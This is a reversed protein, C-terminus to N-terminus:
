RRPEAETPQDREMYRELVSLPVSGLSLLRDHFARVDFKAGSRREAQARIERIKLEGIKYALAQGPWAIYRDVESEIEIRPVATNAELYAIAQDRSWHKQHLGTDVVLRGARWASYELQGFEAYPDTYLGVERPLGESYLGWGESFAPVYGFKRFAPRGPVEMALSFQLHHGPVGEHYALAQMTYTTRSTPDSTNVYFYGPRSGDEPAPYYYGAAAAKARYAEIPRIGYDTRPLHGFLDPLKADIAEFIVRYRALIEPESQNKLKPDDKLQQFFAKLDGSFGVKTRIAEMAERIRAMEALGVEHIQEPSLTTTTFSRARYAYHVDGEPSDWLGVSERCAPLYETEVFAALKAYAPSVQDAIAQRIANTAPDRDAEPWDKLKAVIGWLPSEEPKVPALDRLQPVVKAMTIRPPMRHEAMGRRMLAITQDIARPFARLRRVYNEVDGVTASPHFNVSQAFQLHIGDQQTIPILHGRFREGEIRDDLTFLLVERDIREDASLPEPDLKGLAQRHDRDRKLRAEHAAESLDALRDDYRHDGIFTAELPGSRLEDDWYEAFLTKLQRSPQDTGEGGIFGAQSTGVGWSFGLVTAALIVGKRFHGQNSFYSCITM